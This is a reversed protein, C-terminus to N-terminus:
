SCPSSPELLASIAEGLVDMRDNLYFHGGEHVSVRVEATTHKRWEDAEARSVNDDRDGIHVHIPLDLAARPQPVYTETARYDSRITPLMMEVFEDDALLSDSTGTLRRIEAILDEASLRHVGRDDALHPPRSGSVVLAVPAVGRDRLRHATEFAILAGMSHGFLVIPGPATELEGAVADAADVVDAFGDENIRDQRGPYQVATVAIAPSLHKSFPHFYSASGGAHPFCM